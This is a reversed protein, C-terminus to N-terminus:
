KARGEEPFWFEREGDTRLAVALKEKCANCIEISHIQVCHEFRDLLLFRKLCPVTVTTVCTSENKCIDCILKTIKM